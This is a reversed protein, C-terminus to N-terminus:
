RRQTAAPNVEPTSEGSQPPLTQSAASDGAGPARKTLLRLAEELLEIHEMACELMEGVEHRHFERWDEVGELKKKVLNINM